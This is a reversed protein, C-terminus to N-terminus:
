KQADKKKEKEEVLIYQSNVIKLLIKKNHFWQKRQQVLRPELALNLEAL